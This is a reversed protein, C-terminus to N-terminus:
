KIKVKDRRPKIKVVKKPYEELLVKTMEGLANIESKSLNSREGKSFVTILFVPVGDGSYFTVTRRGGRKGVGTGAIRLKRCGGTGQMEEGADPHVSLFDILQDVEEPTMGADDAARRFGNLECVTHM